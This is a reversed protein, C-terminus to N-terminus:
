AVGDIQILFRFPFYFLFTKTNYIFLNEYIYQYQQKNSTSHTHSPFIHDLKTIKIIIAIIAEKGIAAWVRV